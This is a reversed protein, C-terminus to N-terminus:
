TVALVVGPFATGNDEVVREFPIEVALTVSAVPVGRVAVVRERESGADGITEASAVGRSEFTVAL